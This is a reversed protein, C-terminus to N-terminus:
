ILIGCWADRQVQGAWEDSRRSTVLLVVMRMFNVAFNSAERASASIWAIYLPKWMRWTSKRLFLDVYIALFASFASVSASSKEGRSVRAAASSALKSSLM